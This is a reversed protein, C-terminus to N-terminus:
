FRRTCSTTDRRVPVCRKTPPTPPTVPLTGLRQPTFALSRGSSANLVGFVDSVLSRPKSTNLFPGMLPTGLVTHNHTVPMAFERGPLAEEASPLAHKRRIDMIDM